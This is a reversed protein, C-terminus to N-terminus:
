ACVPYKFATQGSNKFANKFDPRGPSGPLNEFLHPADGGWMKCPRGPRAKHLVMLIAWLEARKIQKQVQLEAAMARHMWARGDAGMVAAWGCQAWVSTGLKSGDPYVHGTRYGDWEPGGSRFTAEESPPQHSWQAAPDAVLGRTWLLMRRNNRVESEATHQWRRHSTNQRQQHFAKCEYLRHGETGLAEKCAQCEAEEAWGWTHLTQQTM